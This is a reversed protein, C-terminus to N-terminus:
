SCVQSGRLISDYACLIWGCYVVVTNGSVWQVRLMCYWHCSPSNTWIVQHSLGATHQQTPGAESAEACSSHLPLPITMLLPQSIGQCRTITLLCRASHENLSSTTHPAPLTLSLSTATINPPLHSFLAQLTVAATDQLGFLQKRVTSVVCVCRSVSVCVCVCMQIEGGAMTFCRTCTVRKCSLPM